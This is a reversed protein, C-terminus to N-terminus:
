AQSNNTNTAMFLIFFIATPSHPRKHTQQHPFSSYISFFTKVKSNLFIFPRSNLSSSQNSALVRANESFPLGSSQPGTFHIPMTRFNEFLRKHSFAHREIHPCVNLEPKYFGKLSEHEMPKVLENADRPGQEQMQFGYAKNSAVFSRM